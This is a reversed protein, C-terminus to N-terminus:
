TITVRVRVGPMTQNDNFTLYIPEAYDVHGVRALAPVLADRLRDGDDVTTAAYDGPLVAFVDYAHTGPECLRGTYLTQRWVPWAAGAVAVDPASPTVSLGPVTELTALILARSDTGTAQPTGNRPAALNM